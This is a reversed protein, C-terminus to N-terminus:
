GATMSSADAPAPPLWLYQGIRCVPRFGFLEYVPRGMPTAHLISETCGRVVAERLLAETIARGLGRGRAPERVSINYLGAVRTSGSRCVTLTGTGMPRDGLLGLVHVVEIDAGGGAAFVARAEEFLSMPMDFGDLFAAVLDDLTREDVTVVEARDPAAEFRQVETLDVHMGLTTEDAVLRHGVLVAEAEPSRSSPTLWWLFARGNAVMAELVQETRRRAEHPAFRCGAVLNFLPYDIDSTVRLVDPEDALELRGTRAVTGLFALLNAEVPALRRDELLTM